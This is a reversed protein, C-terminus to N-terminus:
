INNGTKTAIEAAFREALAEARERSAAETYIRLIPETNSPRVHVWEDAFDLKMGDTMTATADPHSNAIASFVTSLGNREGNFATKRKAMFYDPFGKRFGSLTRNGPDKRRWDTFAQILLAAGALADRGYHLEPLIIGGNGEGGIVAKCQKMLDTVNAEGVKASYCVHGHKEAIDRLARSSSLNNVVPGPNHKLYFDACAVLSYEEGFLSGDECVLAIRDVDPDVVIAFDCRAAKMTEITDTLHEEIPEPNRPFVGSGGCAVTEVRGAGLARCLAPVVTSGAGEVADVLITYGNEAITEPEICSLNLIKRIHIDDYGETKRVEGTLSWDALAFRKSELISLLQEVEAENLFEGRANLLKLANWEVPNHSATVIIGGDAEEGVTAIEVTPTSAVGIDIVNCGCLTMASGVLNAIAEGTPRTDRGIVIKPRPSKAPDDSGDALRSRVWTAFAQAFTTLVEPTLSKGVIGRIGSVSIMLSM